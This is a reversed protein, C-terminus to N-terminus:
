DDGGGNASGGDNSGSTGTSGSAGLSGLPQSSIGIPGSGGEGESESEGGSQQGQQGEGEAESGSQSTGESQGAGAQQDGTGSQSAGQGAGSGGNGNAAPGAAAASADSQLNVLSFSGDAAVSAALQVEAGPTLQPLASGAPVTVTVLGRGVVALQVQQGSISTLIGNLAVSQAQGVASLQPTSLEGNGTLTANAVVEAGPALPQSVASLRRVGGARVTLMSDGASLLYENASRDFAAVVGRVRLSRATGKAKMARLWFTGDALRIGGLQVQQGLTVPGIQSGARVTRVTGDGSATVVTGRHADKAIVVGTWSANGRALKPAPGALAAAPLAAALLAALPLARRM